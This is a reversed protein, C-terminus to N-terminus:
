WRRNYRDRREVRIQASLRHFRRDREARKWATLGGRRYGAELRLLSNIEGRLRTAERRSLRGTDIRHDLNVQRISIPQWYRNAQVHIRPGYAQATAPLAAAPATALIIAPVLLNKM